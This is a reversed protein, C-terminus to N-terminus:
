PRETRSQVGEFRIRRGRGHATSVPLLLRAAVSGMPMAAMRTLTREPDLKEPFGGTVLDYGKQAQVFRPYATETRRAGVGAAVAAGGALGILLALGLWSRWRARVESRFRLWVAHV